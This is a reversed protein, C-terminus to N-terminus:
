PEHFEHLLSQLQYHINKVPFIYPYQVLHHQQIPLRRCLGGKKNPLEEYIEDVKKITYCTLNYLTLIYYIDDLINNM